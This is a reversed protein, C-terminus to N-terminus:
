AVAACACRRVARHARVAGWPWVAWRPSVRRVRVCGARCWGLRCGLCAYMTAYMCVTMCAYMATDICSHICTDMCSHMCCDITIHMTGYIASHICGYLPFCAIRITYVIRVRGKCRGLPPALFSGSHRLCFARCARALRFGAADSLAWGGRTGPTGPGSFRPAGDPFVPCGWGTEVAGGERFGCSADRFFCPRPRRFVVGRGRCFWWM